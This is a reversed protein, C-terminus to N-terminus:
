EGANSYYSGPQQVNTTTRQNNSPDAINLSSAAAPGCPPWPQACGDAATLSLIYVYLIVHHITTVNRPPRGPRGMPLGVAALAMLRHLTHVTHLSSVWETQGVLVWEARGHM